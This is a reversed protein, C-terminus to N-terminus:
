TTVSSTFRGDRSNKAAENMAESVMGSYAKGIEVFFSPRVISSHLSNEELFCVSYTVKMWAVSTTNSVHRAAIM